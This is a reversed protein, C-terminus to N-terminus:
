RSRIHYVRLTKLRPLQAILDENAKKMDPPLAKSKKLYVPSQLWIDFELKGRDKNCSRCASLLNEKITAGGNEWIDIHDVTLPIGTRGCYRCTYNDRKFVDWTVYADIQRQTKRFIVKVLKGTPDKQFMETELLDAQKLLINWEDLTLPMIELNSLDDQKGPILTVFNKGLGSWITGAIQIDAGISHIDIDGLSIQKM